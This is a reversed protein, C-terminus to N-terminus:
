KNTAYFGNCNIKLEEGDEIKIHFIDTFRSKSTGAPPTIELEFKYRKGAKERKLVKILGQESFASEVEFDEGYNNLLWVTKGIPKEPSVNHLLIVTPDVKFRSLVDFPIRLERCDPHTLRVDITGRLRKGLQAPDVKFQIKHTTAKISSDYDATIARSTAKVSRVAFPQDDVCKLTVEPPSASEDSILLKLRKPTYTVKPVVRAQVTLKVVSKTKDNTKVTLPQTYLRAHKSVKFKTVKIVGSEGPAYETKMLQGVTCTCKSTPRTVRLTSDGVNKFRFECRHTSDPNVAGFDHVVREFEIRPGKKDEEVVPVEVATNPEDHITVKTIPPAPEEAQENCGVALLLICGAVLVTCIQGCGKM